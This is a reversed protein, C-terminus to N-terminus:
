RSPASRRASSCSGGTDSATPCSASCPLSSCSPPTSCPAWSGSRGADVAQGGYAPLGRLLLHAHRRHHRDRTAAHLHRLHRRPRSAGHPFRLRDASKAGRREVRTRIMAAVKLGGGPAARRLLRGHGVDRDDGVGGAVQRGLGRGRLADGDDREHHAEAGLAEPGVDVERRVGEPLPHGRGVRRERGGGGRRRAVEERRELGGEIAAGVRITHTLTDPSRDPVRLDAWTARSCARRVALDVDDVRPRRRHADALQGLHAGLQGRAPTDAASIARTRSSRLASTSRNTARSVRSYRFRPPRILPARAATPVISEILGIMVTWSPCRRSRRGPGTAGSPVRAPARAASRSAARAPPAAGCCAPPRRPTGRGSGRASRVPDTSPGSSASRATRRARVDARAADARHHDVLASSAPSAARETWARSPVPLTVTLNRSPSSRVM